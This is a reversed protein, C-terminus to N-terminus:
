LMVAKDLTVVYEIGFQPVNWFHGHCVLMFGTMIIVYLVPNQYQLKLKSTITIVAFYM